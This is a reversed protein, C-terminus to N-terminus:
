IKDFGVQSSGRILALVAPRQAQAVERLKVHRMSKGTRELLREPDPLAVGALALNVTTKTRILSAFARGNTYYCANGWKVVSTRGPVAARIAARAISRRPEPLREIAVEGPQNLDARPAPSALAAKSKTQAKKAAPEKAARRSSAKRASSTM